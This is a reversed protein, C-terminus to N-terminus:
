GRMTDAYERALDPHETQVEAFAATFGIDPKAQMKQLTLAELKEAAGGKGPDNASTAVEAFEIAKPLGSLFDQVIEIPSKKGEGFEVTQGELHATFGLLAMAHDKQAPLVKGAKMLGEVFSVHGARRAATEQAKLKSEREAFEAERKTLEAERAALAEATAM